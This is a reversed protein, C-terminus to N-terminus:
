FLKLPDASGYVLQEVQKNKFHINNTRFTNTLVSLPIVATASGKSGTSIYTNGITGVPVSAFPNAEGSGKVTYSIVAEMKGTKKNPQIRVLTANPYDENAKKPNPVNGLPVIGNKKGNINVGNFSYVDGGPTNAYIVTRKVAKKAAAQMTIKQAYTLGGLKSNVMMSKAYPLFNSEPENPHTVQWQKNLSELRYDKTDNLVDIINGIQKINQASRAKNPLSIEKGLGSWTYKIDPILTPSNFAANRARITPLNYAINLNKFAQQKQQADKLNNIQQFRTNYLQQTNHSQQAMQELADKQAILGRMKPWAIEGTYQSSSRAAETANEILKDRAAVAENMDRSQLGKLNVNLLNNVENIKNQALRGEQSAIGSEQKFYDQIGQNLSNDPLMNVGSTLDGLTM